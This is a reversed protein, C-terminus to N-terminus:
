PEPLHEAGPSPNVIPGTIPKEVKSHTAGNQDPDQAVGTTVKGTSADKVSVVCNAFTDEIDEVLIWSIIGRGNIGGPNKPTPALITGKPAAKELDAMANIILVNNRIRFILDHENCFRKLFTADSQDHQEAHAIPPNDKANYQLTWGNAKACAAAVTKLDSNVVARSKKTLRYHATPLLSLATIHILSGGDKTGRIEVRSIQMDTVVSLLHEGIRNWNWSEIQLQLKQKAKLDYTQRFHGTPDALSIEISDSNKDEASGISKRWTLSLLAPVWDASVNKGEYTIIPDASRLLGAPM